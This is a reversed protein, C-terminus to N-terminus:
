LGLPCVIELVADERLQVSSLDRQDNLPLRAPVTPKVCMRGAIVAPATIPKSAVSNRATEIKAVTYDLTYAPILAPILALECCVALNFCQGM